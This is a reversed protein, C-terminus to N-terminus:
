GRRRTSYTRRRRRSRSMVADGERVSPRTEARMKVIQDDLKLDVITTEGLNEILIKYVRAAIGRRSRWGASSVCCNGNCNIRRPLMPGGGSVALRLLCRYRRSDMPTM